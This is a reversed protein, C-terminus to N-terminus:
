IPMLVNSPFILEQKDSYRGPGITTPRLVAHRAPPQVSFAHAREIFSWATEAFVERSHVLHGIDFSGPRSWAKLDRAPDPEGDRYPM